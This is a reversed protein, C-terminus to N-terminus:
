LYGNWDIPSTGWSALLENTKSFPKSGLFGRYAGLPSPHPSALVAHRNPNIGRLRRQAPKGWAIFVIRNEGQNLANLLCDV